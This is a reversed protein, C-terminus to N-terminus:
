LGWGDMPFAPVFLIYLWRFFFVGTCQFEVSLFYLETLVCSVMLSVHFISCVELAVNFLKAKEGGSNLSFTM